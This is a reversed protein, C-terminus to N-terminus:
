SGAYADAVAALEGISIEGNAYDAAARGLGGITIDGNDDDYSPVIGGTSNHQVTLQVTGLDAETESNTVAGAIHYTGNATPSTPVRVTYIVVVRAGIDLGDVIVRSRNRDANAFFPTRTQGAVRVTDVEAGAVSPTFSESVTLSGAAAFATVEVTTAEGGSLSREAVTRTGSPKLVAAVARDARLLGHGSSQDPGPPGIDLSANLLLTRLEANTQNEANVAHDAALMAAVTGSVHPAAVSTGSFAATDGGSALTRVSSGPAAIEVASGESSYPITENDRDTAAVALVEPYAAPYTVETTEPNGDGQNGAAGIL